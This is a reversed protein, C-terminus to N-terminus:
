AFITSTFAGCAAGGGGGVRNLGAATCRCARGPAGIAPMAPLEDGGDLRPMAGGATEQGTTEICAFLAAEAACLSLGDRGIGAFM